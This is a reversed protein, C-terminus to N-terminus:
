HASSHQHIGSLANVDGPLLDAATLTYAGVLIEM